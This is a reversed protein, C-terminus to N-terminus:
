RNGYSVYLVHSSVSTRAAPTKGFNLTHVVRGGSEDSSSSKAESPGVDDADLSAGSEDLDEEILEALLQSKAKDLDSAITKSLDADSSETLVRESDSATNMATERPLGGPMYMWIFLSFFLVTVAAAALEWRANSFGFGLVPTRREAFEQSRIEAMLGAIVEDGPVLRTLQGIRGSLLKLSKLYDSCERCVALHSELEVLRWGSLENDIYASIHIRRKSCDKKKM